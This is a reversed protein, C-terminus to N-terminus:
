FLDVYELGLKALSEDIARQAADYGHADNNLKTTIFLEDRPLGSAAVARGVGEENQYMEATDIHRYGADLAARVNQATEDPPVQFVGLGFQPIEVGNNLRITPVQTM